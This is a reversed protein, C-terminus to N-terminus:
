TAIQKRFLEVSIGIVGSFWLSTFRLFHEYGIRAPGLLTSGLSKAVGLFSFGRFLLDGSGSTLKELVRLLRVPCVVALPSSSGM